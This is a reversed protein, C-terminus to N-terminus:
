TAAIVIQFTLANSIFNDFSDCVALLEGRLPAFSTNSVAFPATHLIFVVITVTCIHLEVIPVM